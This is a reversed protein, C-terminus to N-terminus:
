EYGDRAQYRAGPHKAYLNIKKTNGQEVYSGRPRERQLSTSLM